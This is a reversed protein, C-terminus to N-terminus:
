GLMFSTAFFDGSMKFGFFLLHCNVLCTLFLAGVDRWIKFELYKENIRHNPPFIPSRICLNTKNRSRSSPSYVSSNELKTELSYLCVWVCVNVYIVLFVGVGGFFYVPSHPFLAFFGWLDFGLIGEFQVLVEYKSWFLLDQSHLICFWIVLCHQVFM